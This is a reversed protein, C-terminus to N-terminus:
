IEYKKRITETFEIVTVKIDTVKFASKLEALKKLMESEDDFILNENRRRTSGIYGKFWEICYKKIV